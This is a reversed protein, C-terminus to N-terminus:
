DFIILLLSTFRGHFLLVDGLVGGLAKLSENVLKVVQLAFFGFLDLLIQCVCSRQAVEGFVAFQISCLIFLTLNGCSDRFQFLQDLFRFDDALAVHLIVNHVKTGGNGNIVILKFFFHFIGDHAGIFRIGHLVLNGVLAGDAAFQDVLGDTVFDTDISGATLQLQLKRFRPVCLENNKKIPRIDALSM